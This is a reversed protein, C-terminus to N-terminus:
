QSVSKHLNVLSTMIRDAAPPDLPQVSVQLFRWRGDLESRGALKVWDKETTIILEAGRQDATLRIKALDTPSYNHHDPFTIFKEPILNQNQLSNLFSRPYALGCFAIIRKLGSGPLTLTGQADVLGDIQYRADIVPTEPLRHLFALNGAPGGNFWFLRARRLQGLPERLPGAPLLFGNGLSARHRFTVVDIDRQLRRHQFGDDLLIVGPHFRDCLIRGGRVRDSDVVVPAGPLRHALLLPEDGGQEVTALIETEDSVVLPGSERRRYGRSLIAPRLGRSQLWQAWYLVTPTKGTGGVSLNGICIVPCPLSASRLLKHEYGCNRVAIISRYLLSFPWLLVAPWKKEFFNM